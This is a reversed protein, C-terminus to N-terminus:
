LKQRGQYLFFIKFLNRITFKNANNTNWEWKWFSEVEIQFLDGKKEGGLSIPGLIMQKGEEDSLGQAPFKVFLCGRVVDHEHSFATFHTQTLAQGAIVAHRANTPTDFISNMESEFKSEFSFPALM